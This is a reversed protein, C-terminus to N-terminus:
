IARFAQVVYKALEPDLPKNTDLDIWKDSAAGDVRICASWYAAEGQYIVFGFHVQFLKGPVPIFPRGMIWGLQALLRPRMEVYASKLSDGTIKGGTINQNEFAQKIGAAVVDHPDMPFAQLIAIKAILCENNAANLFEDHQEWM